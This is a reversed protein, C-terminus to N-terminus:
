TTDISWKPIFHLGSDSRKFVERAKTSLPGLLDNEHDYQDTDHNIDRDSLDGGKKGLTGIKDDLESENHHSHTHTDTVSGGGGARSRSLSETSSRSSRVSNGTQVGEVHRDLSSVIRKSKKPPAVDWSKGSSLRRQVIESLGSMDGPTGVVGGGTPTGSRNKIRRSRHTHSVGSGIGSVVNGHESTNINGNEGNGAGVGTVYDAASVVSVTTEEGDSDSDHKKSGTIFGNPGKDKEKRRLPM